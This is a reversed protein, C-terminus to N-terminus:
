AGQKDPTQAAETQGVKRLNKIEVKGTSLEFSYGGEYVSGNHEFAVVSPTQNKIKAGDPLAGTIDRLPQTPRKGRRHLAKPVGYQGVPVRGAVEAFSLEHEM